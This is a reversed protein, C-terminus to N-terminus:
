SWQVSVASFTDSENMENHIIGDHHVFVNVCINLAPSFTAHSVCPIYSVIVGVNLRFGTFFLCLWVLTLMHLFIM